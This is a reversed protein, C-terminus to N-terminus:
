SAKSPRELNYRRMKDYLTKRSIKLHRSAETVQWAYRECVAVIYNREVSELSMTDAGSTALGQFLGAELPGSGVRMFKKAASLPENTSEPILDYVPLGRSKEVDHLLDLTQFLGAYGSSIDFSRLIGSVMPELEPVLKKYGRHAIYESAIATIDEIRDYLPPLEVSSKRLLSQLEQRILGKKVASSLEPSSFILYFLNQGESAQANLGSLLFNQDQRGLGHLNTIAILRRTQNKRRENTPLLKALVDRKARSGFDVVTTQVNKEPWLLNSLYKVFEHVFIQDKSKIFLFNAHTVGHFLRERFQVVGISRGHLVPPLSAGARSASNIEALRSAMMTNENQMQTKEALLRRHKENAILSWRWEAGTPEIVLGNDNECFALISHINKLNEPFLSFAQLRHKTRMIISIAVGGEVAGFRDAAVALAIDGKEVLYESDFFIIAPAADVKPNFRKATKLFFGQPLNNRCFDALTKNKTILLVEAV